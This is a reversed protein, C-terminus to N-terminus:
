KLGALQYGEFRFCNNKIIHLATASSYRTAFFNFDPILYFVFNVITETNNFICDFLSYIKDDM